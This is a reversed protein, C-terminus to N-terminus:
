LFTAVVRGEGVGLKDLFVFIESPNTTSTSTASSEPVQRVQRCRGAYCYACARTRGVIRTVGASSPRHERTVAHLGGCRRRRRDGCMRFINGAQCKRRQHLGGTASNGAASSRSSRQRKRVRLSTPQRSQLRLVMITKVTVFNRSPFSARAGRV